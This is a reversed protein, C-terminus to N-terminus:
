GGEMVAADQQSTLPGEPEATVNRVLLAGQQRVAAVALVSSTRFRASRFLLGEVWRSADRDEPLAVEPGDRVLPADHPELVRPAHVIEGVQEGMWPPAEM